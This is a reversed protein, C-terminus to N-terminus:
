QATTPCTKIGEILFAPRPGVFEVIMCKASSAQASINAFLSSPRCLSPILGECPPLKAAKTSHKRRMQSDTASCSAPSSCIEDGRAIKRRWNTPTSANIKKSFASVVSLNM